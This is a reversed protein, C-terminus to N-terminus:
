KKFLGSAEDVAEALDIEIEMLNEGDKDTDIKLILKSLNFKFDVLKAGEIAKGRSFAEEVAENLAINIKAVKDGDKNSDVNLVFKGESVSLDIAKNEEM